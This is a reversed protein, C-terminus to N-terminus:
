FFKLNNNKEEDTLIGHLKNLAINFKKIKKSYKEIEEKNEQIKEDITDIESEYMDIELLKELIKSKVYNIKEKIEFISM